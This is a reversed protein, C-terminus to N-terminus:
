PSTCDPAQSYSVVYQYSIALWMGYQIYGGAVASLLWPFQLWVYLYWGAAMPVHIPQSPPAVVKVLWTEIGEQYEQYMRLVKVRLIEALTVIWGWSFELFVKSAYM